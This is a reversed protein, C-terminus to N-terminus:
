QCFGFEYQYSWDTSPRWSPDPIAPPDVDTMNPWYAPWVNQALKFPTFDYFSNGLRFLCPYSEKSLFENPTVGEEKEPFYGLKGLEYVDTVRNLTKGQKSLHNTEVKIASCTAILSATALTAKM